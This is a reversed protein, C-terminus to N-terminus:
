TSEWASRLAAYFPTEGNAPIPDGNKKQYYQLRRLRGQPTKRGDNPYVDSEEHTPRYRGAISASVKKTGGFEIPPGSLGAVSPDLFAPTANLDVMEWPDAAWADRPTFPPFNWKMEILKMISTHDFVTSTVYNPKAYASVVGAPVRFGLQGFSTYSADGQWVDGPKVPLRPSSADPVPAAPPVVHDYYGGHEDYTYLLLTKKWHKGKTVATVVDHLFADHHQVDEPNEGSARDFDPDVISVSPLTGNKADTFFNSLDTLHDFFEVGKGVQGPYILASPLSAFYNKWTIGHETLAQLITGNVPLDTTLDNFTQGLATGGMMFRRNPYTQAMCSGFWRDALPFSSAVSHLFPVHEDTYYGMAVPGSDSLVFGSNRETPYPGAGLHSSTPNATGYFQTWSAGWAQSPKEAMQATTPMKFSRIEPFSGFSPDTPRNPNTNKARTSTDGGAFTLGDGRGLSGLLNDFSHNETMVIVIHEIKDYAAVPKGVKLGSFPKRGAPNTLSFPIRSAGAPRTAVMASAAGVAGVALLQRRTVELSGM